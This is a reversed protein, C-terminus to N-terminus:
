FGINVGFTVQRQLQASEWSRVEPDSFEWDPAWFGLNKGAVYVSLSNINWDEVLSSLNYTLSVNQLRIFTYKQLGLFRESNFYDNRLYTDSPNEETWFPHDLQNRVAFGDFSQYAGSNSALGYDGGSFVGNLLFYLQLNKYTLTNSLSLRFNEKQYGLVKRDASTIEGDGDLDAYMADGLQASNAAIYETDDEQVVGIWEYGYIAGLSKNLFLSYYIPVDANILDNGSGDIEVLKNRNLSFVLNSNWSFNEKRMNVSTANVEIGWNDVQGMTSNQTTIGAGMVPITRNFIQDTTESKYVDLELHLRKGLIDTEFGTNFSKTTEWALAANGLVDLIQGYYYNEGFLYIQEGGRGMLLQSLTGYPSLAQSGNKGYSFKLKLYDFFNMNKIFQENSATWAVGVAPFVGWKNETGFVSSGDRRVSASIQYTGDYSYILRGLYAVDSKEIYTTEFNRVGANPLGYTGLSTNGLGTFDSGSLLSGDTVRHSRTYVLTANFYNKAIDRTYNLINDFTYYKSEENEISGNADTLYNAYEAATYADEGLSINVWNTEHTFEKINTSNVSYSGTLKYSLGEIWPLTIDLNGGLLTSKKLTQSDGGQSYDWLPNESTNEKGDPYKRLTVGDSLYPSAWPSMTVAGNYYPRVGNAEMFGQNFNAGISIYDNIKSDIKANFSTRQYDDGIVFSEQDNYMAGVLYRVRETGGSVDASYNQTVGTRTIMDYWDTSKGAAYNAAELETMWDGPGASKTRANMLEIYGDGDRMDPRYNPTVFTASTRVNIVPKGVAGQKTTIMIVGNAAQSGYAALSTADKLVSINEIIGPDISEIHGHFIVGDLVILPNAALNDREIDEEEDSLSGISRQGRVLINASQGAEGSQSLQVGSTVGNLLELASTTQIQSLPSNSISVNSVAGTFNRRTTTGYGIVVVEDLSQIDEILSINLQTQAGVEVEESLYGVFSFTLIATPSGVTITYEGNLNSVTGNNTGKEIINVGPMLNGESDTVVGSITIEQNLNVGDKTTIVVLNNDLIWYELGMDNAVDDLFDEVSTKGSFKNDVKNEKIFNDRYVFRYSTQNEIEMLVESLSLNKDEIVFSTNQSFVSASIQLLNLTLLFVTLKMTLWIKSRSMVGENFKLKENKKM